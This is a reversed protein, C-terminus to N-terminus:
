NSRGCEDCVMTFSALLSGLSTEYVSVLPVDGCEVDSLEITPIPDDFVMVTFTLYFTCKGLNPLPECGYMSLSTTTVITEGNTCVGPISLDNINVIDVGPRTTFWGSPTCDCEYEATLPDDAAVTSLSSLATFLLTTAIHM